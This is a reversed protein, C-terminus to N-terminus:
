SFWDGWSSGSYDVSTSAAAAAAVLGGDGSGADTCGELSFSATAGADAYLTSSSADGGTYNAAGGGYDAGGYTTTAGYGTNDYTTYTAATASNDMYINNTVYTTDGAAYGNNAYADSPFSSQQETPPPPPPPPPPPAGAYHNGAEAHGANYSNDGHAYGQGGHGGQAQAPDPRLAASVASSAVMAAAATLNPDLNGQQQPPPPPPPGPRGPGFQPPPFPPPPPLNGMMVPRMYPYQQQQQQQQNFGIQAQAQANFNVAVGAPNQVVPPRGPQVAFQQNAPQPPGTQPRGPQPYGQALQVHNLPQQGPQPLGPQQNPQLQQQPRGPQMLQQQPIGATVGQGQPPATQAHVLPPRNSAAM